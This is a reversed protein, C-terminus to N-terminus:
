LKGHNIEVSNYMCKPFTLNFKKTNVIGPIITFDNHFIYIFLCRFTNFAGTAAVVPFLM